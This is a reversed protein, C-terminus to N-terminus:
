DAYLIFQTPPIFLFIYPPALTGKAGQPKFNDGGGGCIDQGDNKIKVNLNM